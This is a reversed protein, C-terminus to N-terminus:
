KDACPLPKESGRRRERRMETRRKTKQNEECQLLRTFQSAKLDVEAWESSSITGEVIGAGAYILAGLGKGVLASRIGVAFEAEEGGFWGVPGAYMGRDFAENEAIFRRAAEAPLGCVAPTPHLHTLLYFEDEERKLRGSLQACLHQVRPLKRITKTSEVRVEDCLAELKAKISERVYSFEVDDKSSFLLDQRIELDEKWTRGRPRTGALAESWVQLKEKRFLREPTNGIFAPGGAPQICFQYAMKGEMQLCGLLTIPDIEMDTLIRTNRALVVKKLASNESKIMQLAKKVTTDWSAKGPTHSSAVITATPVQRQLNSSSPLIQGMTNLLSTMAKEWPWHLGDDWAVNIALKSGEQLENLEVQPISFFFSGFHEWESSVTTTADFRLAGYARISPCDKSLFRRICKWDEFSFPQYQRFYVASGVGAVGVVENWESRAPVPSGDEDPAWGERGSFFVRPLTQQAHMWAVAEIRQQIPVELRIIGSRSDPSSSALATVASRIEAMAAEPSSVAPLSSTRCVRADRQEENIRGGCGNMYHCCRLRTVPNTRASRLSNPSIRQRLFVAPSPQAQRALDSCLFSKMVSAAGEAM